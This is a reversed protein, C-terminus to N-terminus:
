LGKSRKFERRILPVQFKFFHGKLTKIYKISSSYFRIIKHLRERRRRRRNFINVTKNEAPSLYKCIFYHFKSQLETLYFCKDNENNDRPKSFM